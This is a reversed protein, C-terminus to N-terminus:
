WWYYHDYFVPRYYHVSYYRYYYPRYHRYHYSHYGRDYSDYVNYGRYNYPHNYTTYGAGDYGYYYASAAQISLLAVIVFLATIISKRM